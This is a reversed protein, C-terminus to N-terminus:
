AATVHARAAKDRFLGRIARLPMLPLQVLGGVAVVVLVTLLALACKFM